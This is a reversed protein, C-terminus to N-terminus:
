APLGLPPLAGVVKVTERSVTIVQGVLRLIYQPDDARNPDHHREALREAARAFACFV